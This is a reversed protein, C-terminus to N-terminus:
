NFELTILTAPSAGVNMTAHVQGRPIWRVEGAKMALGSPPQGAVDERLNLDTVAILLRDYNEDHKEIRGGAAIRMTYGRTATANFLEGFAADHYRFGGMPTSFVRADANLAEVVLLDAPESSNNREALTFGGKSTHLEGAEAHTVVPQRGRVENGIVAPRLSLFAYFVAHRHPLTVEGPQLRLRFVRVQENRLVLTHHPEDAIEVATPEPQQALVAACAAAAALSAALFSIAFRVRRITDWPPLRNM